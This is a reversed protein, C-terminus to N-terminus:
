ALRVPLYVESLNAAPDGGEHIQRFVQVPPGEELVHRRSGFIQEALTAYAQIITDYPGRHEIVGYLGGAFDIVRVDGDGEPEGGAVLCADLRQLHPPTLYPSDHCITIPAGGHSVGKAGAWAALRTFWPDDQTLPVELSDYAGFRRLGILRAPPLTVFRVESLTCGDGTFNRSGAARQALGSWAARRYASPTCGFKRRFARSFTEPTHFGVSLSIETLSARTVAIKYAARELRVREVHQKPTEGVTESFLRHFHFASLGARRSLAALSVEDEFDDGFEALLPALDLPNM